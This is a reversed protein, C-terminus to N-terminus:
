FIRQVVSDAGNVLGAIIIPTLMNQVSIYIIKEFMNLSALDFAVIGGNTLSVGLKICIVMFAGSIAFGFLTRVFNMATRGGEATGAAMAMSISSFPLIALPKIIRQYASSLITISSGVVIVLTGIAFLMFLLRNFICVGFESIWTIIPGFGDNVFSYDEPLTPDEEVLAITALLEDSLTLEYDATMGFAVTIEDAIEIVAGMVDWLNALVALMVVFKLMDMILCRLQQEAPSGMVDKFIAILFFVEAIPIAIGSIANFLNQAIGYVEANATTPSTTFLTMALEMLYNWIGYSVNYIAEIM